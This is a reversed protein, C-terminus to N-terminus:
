FVAVQQGTRALLRATLQMHTAFTTESRSPEERADTLMQPLSDRAAWLLQMRIQNSATAGQELESVLDDIRPRAEAQFVDWKDPSAEDTRLQKIEGWLAGLEKYSAIEEVYPPRTQYYYLTNLGCWGGIVLLVIVHKKQINGFVAGFIQAVFLSFAELTNGLFAFIGGVLSVLFFPRRSSAAARSSMIRASTTQKHAQDQMGSSTAIEPTQAVLSRMVYDARQWKNTGQSRVSDGPALEGKRLLAVLVGFKVPGHTKGKTKYFFQDKM